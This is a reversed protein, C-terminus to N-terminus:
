HRANPETGEATVPGRDLLEDLELQVMEDCLDEDQLDEDQLDEPVSTAPLSVIAPLAPAALVATGTGEVAADATAVATNKFVHTRYAWFRFVTGIAIGVFTCANLAVLSTEDFGYKALAVIGTEIGLGVANFVFFLSYERRLTSKPRHRYTWYRNLFYACTTAVVTAVAKAKVESGSVAVLLANFVAFNVGLNILGVTGFKAVEDTIAHFREPVRSLLVAKADGLGDLLRRGARRAKHLAPTIRTSVATDSGAVM